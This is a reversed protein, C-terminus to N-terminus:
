PTGALAAFRAYRLYELYRDNFHLAALETPPSAEDPPQLPVPTIAKIGHAGLAARWEFDVEKSERAARSWFLLFRNRKRIEQLLRERWLEGSYLSHFDVFIDLGPQWAHIGQVRRLVESRDSSAYSAFAAPTRVGSAQETHQLAVQLGLVNNSRLWSLLDSLPVGDLWNTTAAGSNAASMASPDVDHAVMMKHTNTQQQLLECFSPRSQMKLIDRTETLLRHELVLRQDDCTQIDRKCRTRLDDESPFTAMVKEILASHSADLEAITRRLTSASEQSANVESEGLLHRVYASRITAIRELQDQTPLWESDAYDALSRRTLHLMRLRKWDAPQPGVGNGIGIERLERLAADFRKRGGIRLAAMMAKLADKAHSVRAYRMQLGSVQDGLKNIKQALDHASRLREMYESFAPHAQLEGIAARIRQYLSSLDGERLPLVVTPAEPAPVGDLAVVCPLRHTVRLDRALAYVAKNKAVIEDGDEVLGFRRGMVLPVVRVADPAEHLDCDFQRRRNPPPGSSTRLQYHARQAVVAFAIDSGTLADLSLANDVFWREADRDVDAFLFLLYGAYPTPFLESPVTGLTRFVKASPGIVDIHFGM